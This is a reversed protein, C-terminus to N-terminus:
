PSHPDLGLHCRGSYSVLSTGLLFTRVLFLRRQGWGRQCLGTKRQGWRLQSVPSVFRGQHIPFRTSDLTYLGLDDALNSRLLLLLTSTRRLELNFSDPWQHRQLCPRQTHDWCLLPSWQDQTAVLKWFEQFSTISCLIQTKGATRPLFIHLLRIGEWDLDLHGFQCLLDM